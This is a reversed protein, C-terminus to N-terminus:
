VLVPETTLLADTKRIPIGEFSLDFQNLGQTLSLSNISKNMAQIKLMSYVGRPMYFAPKVGGVGPLRDIARSMYEILKVTSGTTDNTLNGIDINAMRVVYRWDRVALGAKWQWRDVFAKMRGGGVSTDLQILQEGLDEHFIGAQSGKPFIGHVSNEGWGVLWVSAQDAGSATADVKLINSSNAGGSAAFRPSLGTFQEPAVAQNGYFLTSAMTQNMAELFAQAESLRFAAQDGNLKALDVDVECLAEMIGTAEDVQATKSKSGSVGSNLQRFGVTPLGTRLTTRHGTPLNGEVFLMDDLIPNTQNLMEVVKDVKGGEDVRKAWDALTLANSSSVTAM